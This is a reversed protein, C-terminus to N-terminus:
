TPQAWSMELYAVDQGQALAPSQAIVVGGIALALLGTKFLKKNIM